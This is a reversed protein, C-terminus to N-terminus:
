HPPYVARVDEQSDYVDEESGKKQAGLQIQRLYEVLGAVEVRGEGRSDCERFLLTYVKEEDEEEEEGQGGELGASQLSVFIAQFGALRLADADSYGLAM